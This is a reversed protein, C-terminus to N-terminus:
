ATEERQRRQYEKLLSQRRATSIRDVYLNGSLHDMEHQIARALLGEGEIRVRKGDLTMGEVVAHTARAVPADVGPVSLCGEYVEEIEGSTEILEPNILIHFEGDVDLIIIQKSIGVQPAALGAGHSRIMTEVMQECIARIEDDIVDVSEARRRLVPDGYTRIEMKREGQTGFRPM